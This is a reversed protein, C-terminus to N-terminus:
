VSKSSAPHMRFVQSAQVKVIIQGFTAVLDIAPWDGETIDPSRHEHHPGDLVVDSGLARHVLDVQEHERIRALDRKQQGTTSVISPDDALRAMEPASVLDSGALVAVFIYVGVSPLRFCEFPFARPPRDPLCPQSLVGAFLNWWGRHTRGLLIIKGQAVRWAGVHQLLLVTESQSNALIPYNTTPYSCPANDKSV